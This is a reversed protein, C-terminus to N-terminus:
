DCSAAASSASRLRRAADEPSVPNIFCGAGLEFGALRTIRPALELRWHHEDHRSPQFPATHIWYNYAPTDLVRELREILDRVLRALEAIVSRETDAFSERHELPLIWTEYPFRSAFPTLAVFHETSAVFRSGRDLERVALECYICGRHALRHEGARALERQRDPPVLTTAILQSHSHELSAGGGARSNKFVQAYALRDDAQHARIRDRYALFTLEAQLDSLESFSVVHQPSEIIVEHAGLGPVGLPSGDGSFCVAPYKNPVVRVQWNLADDASYYAALEGPTEGEHGGCFPCPAVIRRAVPAALLEDPRQQREPAIIVWQDTLPDHRYEPM